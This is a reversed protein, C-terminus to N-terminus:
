QIVGLCIVTREWLLYHDVSITNTSGGELLFAKIIFDFFHNIPNSAVALTIIWLNDEAKNIPINGV